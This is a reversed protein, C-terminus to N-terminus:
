QHEVEFLDTLTYNLQGPTSPTSLRHFSNKGSDDREFSRRLWRQHWDIELNLNVPQCCRFPAKTNPVEQFSRKLWRQYWDIELNLDVPQCCQFPAKTNLVEQFSRKLWRQYWDIDTNITEQQFDASGEPPSASFMFPLSHFPSVTLKLTTFVTFTRDKRFEFSSGHLISNTGAKTAILVPGGMAAGTMPLGYAEYGVASPSILGGHIQSSFITGGFASGYEYRNAAYLDVSHGRTQNGFSLGYFGTWSTVAGSQLMSLALIQRPETALAAKEPPQLRMTRRAPAPSASTLLRPKRLSPNLKEPSAKQSLLKDSSLKQSSMKGSSVRAPSHPRLQIYKEIGGAIMILLLVAAVFATQWRLPWPTSESTRSPAPATLPIGEGRARIVFRATMQRPSRSYRYDEKKYLPLAQASIQAFDSLRRRCDACTELHQDLEGLEGDDSQGIVAMACMVEFKEHQSM